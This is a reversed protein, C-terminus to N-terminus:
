SSDLKITLLSLSVVSRSTELPFLEFSLFHIYPHCLHVESPMLCSDNLM